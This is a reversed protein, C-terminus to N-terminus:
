KGHHLMDHTTSGRGSYFGINFPRPLLRLHLIGWASTIWLSGLDAPRWATFCTKLWRCGSGGGGGAKIKAAFERANAVCRAGLPEDLKKLSEVLADATLANM